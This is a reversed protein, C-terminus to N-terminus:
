VPAIPNNKNDTTTNHIPGIPPLVIAGVAPPWLFVSFSDRQFSFSCVKCTFGTRTDYLAGHTRLDLSLDIMGKGIQINNNLHLICWTCVCRVVVGGPRNSRVCMSVLYSDCGCSTTATKTVYDFRCPASLGSIWGMTVFAAYFVEQQFFFLSLYCRHTYLVSGHAREDLPIAIM